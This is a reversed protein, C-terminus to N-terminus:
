IANSLPDVKIGKAGKGLQLRMDDPIEMKTHQDASIMVYIIESTAILESNEYNYFDVGLTFSSTGIKVSKVTAAIIEDFHAPAKWSITLNVVQSDVGSALIDNYNGWIVRMFETVAIDIYDVYKGNFVVKQADCESYRVRFLYCFDNNISIEM